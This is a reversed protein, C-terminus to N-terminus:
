SHLKCSLNALQLQQILVRAAQGCITMESVTTVWHINESYSLRLNQFSQTSFTPIRM